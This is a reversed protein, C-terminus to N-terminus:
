LGLENMLFAYRDADSEVYQRILDAGGHGANREIRLLQPNKSTNAHQLAGIMKRAHMPDVRDDSDASMMLMAPYDTNPKVHHYPSYAHLVAFDDAKEPDGYESIWTKGSGFLTYRVMDLLPVACVVAGYLDPRQTMAAGVLLGGNSGGTIGIKGKSTYGEKVLFEAAGIFDDFVNQKKHLMGDKHWKEGYEGGGRLNPIAFGGGAELWPYISARFYPHMTVLFGGYGNIVFPTSGDRPMDKRYVLFMPIKTGDKSEFFVQEVTYPDPNVPVKVEAWVETTGSAISTKYIKPPNTFSQFSFYADDDEPNGTMGFSAGVGPLEIDRVLKGSFDFLRLDSKVDQILTLVIRGGVIQMGDIVSGDELEGILEKWNKREPSKADVKMIRYRDAGENTMIYFSDKYAEVSYISPVGEVIPKFEKDGRELDKYYVDSANWGHWTYTFLFRGDRSLDVGVFVKPDGTKERVLVDKKPDEGLKHFRIEAYGPRESVPIDPGSPLFVYYFGSGDPTWSPRSYKVGPIVDIDSVKKTAVDMVYLVSEDANNEKLAYAVKKGDWTPKVWGVSISGDESMANPDLLVQEEGDQGVKYYHIRKEKDAHRRTYFYTEGRRVPASVSDIYYLEAFREALQDRKPLAKLYDRAVKDQGDMWAQVEPKEVDELWRYPDKVQVGHMTDVISDDRKTEPYMSTEEAGSGSETVAKEDTNPTASCAVATAVAAILLIRFRM